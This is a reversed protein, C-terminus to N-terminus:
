KGVVHKFVFFDEGHRICISYFGPVRPIYTTIIDGQHKFEKSHVLKGNINFVNVEVPENGVLEHIEITILSSRDSPNPFVKIKPKDLLSINNQTTSRQKLDVAFTKGLSDSWVSMYQHENLTFDIKESNAPKLDSDNLFYFANPDENHRNCDIQTKSMFFYHTNDELDQLNVRYTRFNHHSGILPLYNLQAGNFIFLSDLSLSDSAAVRLYLQQQQKKWDYLYFKWSLLPDPSGNTKSCPAGTRIKDDKKSFIVYSEDSMLVDPMNGLTLTDGLSLILTDKSNTVTQSQFFEQKDSRGLALVQKDFLFDVSKNWHLHKDHGWYDRWKEDKNKTIPISYKLALYSSVKRMEQRTLPHPYIVLEALSFLTTDGIQLDTSSMQGYIANRRHQISVISPESVNHNISMRRGSVSLHDDCIVLDGLKLFAKGEPKNNLKLVLFVTAEKEFDINKATIASQLNLLDISRYNGLTTKLDQEAYWLSYDSISGPATQTQAMLASVALLMSLLLFQPRFFTSQM